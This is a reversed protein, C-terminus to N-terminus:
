LKIGKVRVEDAELEQPSMAQAARFMPLASRESYVPVWGNFAAGSSVVVGLHKVQIVTDSREGKKNYTVRVTLRYWNGSRDIDWCEYTYM